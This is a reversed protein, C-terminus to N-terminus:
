VVVTLQGTNDANCDLNLGNKTNVRKTITASLAATANGPDVKFFTNDMDSTCGNGSTVIVEYDGESLASVLKSSENAGLTQPYSPISTGNRQVDVTYPKTGDSINVTVSSTRDDFCAIDIDSISAVAIPDPKGISFTNANTTGIALDNRCNDTFAISYPISANTQSPIGTILATAGSMSTADGSIIDADTISGQINNTPTLGGGSIVYAIDIQGRDKKIGTIQLTGLAGGSSNCAADTEAGVTVNSVIEPTVQFGSFNFTCGASTVSPTYNGNPLGSIGPSLSSTSGSNRTATGVINFTHNATRNNGTKILDVSVSGDNTDDCSSKTINPGGNLTINLGQGISFSSSTSGSTCGDKINVTYSGQSLGNIVLKDDSNLPADIDTGSINYTVDNAGALSKRVSVPIEVSGDTGGICAPASTDPTSSTLTKTAPPIDVYFRCPCSLKNPNNAPLGDDPEVIVEYLGPRLELANTSNNEEKVDDDSLTYRFETVGTTSTFIESYNGIKGTCFKAGSGYSLNAVNFGNCIPISSNRSTISDVDLEYSNTTVGPPCAGDVQTVFQAVSYNFLQNTRTGLPHVITITGSGDPCDPEDASFSTLEPPPPLFKFTRRVNNKMNDPNCDTCSVSGIAVAFTLRENRFESTFDSTRFTASVDDRGSMRNWSGGSAKRYYWKYKGKPWGPSANLVLSEDFCISERGINASSVGIIPKLSNITIVPGNRPDGRDCENQYPFYDGYNCRPSEDVPRIVYNSVYDQPFSGNDRASYSWADAFQDEIGDADYDWRWGPSNTNITVTNNREIDVGSIRFCEYFSEFNSYFEDCEFTSSFDVEYSQAALKSTSLSILLILILKYTLRLAM